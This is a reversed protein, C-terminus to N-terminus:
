FNYNIFKSKNLYFRNPVIYQLNLLDELNSFKITDCDTNYIKLKPAYLDEIVYHSIDPYKKNSRDIYYNIIKMNPFSHTGRGSYGTIKSKWAIVYM